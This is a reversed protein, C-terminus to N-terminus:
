NVDEKGPPNCSDFRNRWEKRFNAKEEPTMNKWRERLHNVFKPRHWAPHFRLSGFLIRSLIFIGIAQSYTIAKVPLVDPLIANWLIMVLLCVLLVVIPIVLIAIWKFRRRRPHYDNM